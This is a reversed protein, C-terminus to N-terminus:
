LLSYSKVNLLYDLDRRSNNGCMVLLVVESHDALSTGVVKTNRWTSSWGCLTISMRSM